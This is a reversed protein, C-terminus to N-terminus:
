QHIVLNGHDAFSKADVRFDSCGGDPYTPWYEIWNAYDYYQLHWEDGSAGPTGVDVIQWRLYEGPDGAAPVDDWGERRVIQAIVIASPSGEVLGFSV